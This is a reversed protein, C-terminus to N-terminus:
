PIRVTYYSAGYGAWLGLGGSINSALSGSGPFIPSDAFMRSDDYGKWYLYADDDMTCFKLYVTTGSKFDISYGTASMGVPPLVSCAVSEGNFNEDNLTGLLTPFCQAGASEGESISRTFIRYKDGKVPPDSFYVTLLYDEGELRETKISDLPVKHPITTSATVNMGAYSVSLGYTKGAVGTISHDTYIYPVAYREDKRGVLTTTVGDVSVRVDAWRVIADQIAEQGQSQGSVPLTTSVMVVPHGGEDIWGEVVLKPESVPLQTCACVHVAAAILGLASFIRLPRAPQRSISTTRIQKGLDTTDTKRVPEKRRIPFRHSFLRDLCHLYHFFM